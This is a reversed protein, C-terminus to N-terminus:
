WAPPNAPDLAMLFEACPWCTIGDRVLRDRGRYVLLRVAEPYDAGFARLSRLDEPRVRDSNKVEVAWFHEPGYVVFDVELGRAKTRWCFLRSAEQRYDVFAKLHQAVLGEMAVGAIEEPRDLPGAPRLARFVGADFYYFKPHAITARKARRTFIPLRFALLLDELIEVYGAATRRQVQCERAVHSINLVAAHSFSIAELFRAFDGVRRVLGETKVEENLYLSAYSRLVDQSDRASWVLPVLGHRLARELDFAAGLEAALFPHLGRLVLRGALLDVGTRKLKRASSGTLVFRLGPRAEILQHVVDLLAPLKQVEDIIVTEGQFAAVREQLLEPRASLSRELHPDLLDLFLAGPCCEAL